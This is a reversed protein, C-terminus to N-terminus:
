CWQYAYNRRGKVAIAANTSMTSIVKIKEAIDQSVVEGVNLERGDSLSIVLSGDFDIHANTVSVGDVGDVGDRGAQGDAGKDGKLGDRGSKEMKVMVGMQVMLVM